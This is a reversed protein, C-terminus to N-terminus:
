NLTNNRRDCETQAEENSLFLDNEHWCRGSGVGTSDLMYKIEPKEKYKKSDYLDIDVKGIRGSKYYVYYEIDGEKIHYTNGRCKPCTYSEDNIIVKGSDNCVPCNTSIKIKERRTDIPYVKDGFNYKTIINM